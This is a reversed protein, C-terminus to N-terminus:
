GGRLVSLERMMKKLNGLPEAFLICVAYTLFSGSQAWQLPCPLEDDPSPVSTRPAVTWLGWLWVHSFLKACRAYVHHRLCNLGFHVLFPMLIRQRAATELSSKLKYPKIGTDPRRNLSGSKILNGSPSVFLFTLFISVLNSPGLQLPMLPVECYWSFVPVPLVTTEGWKEM